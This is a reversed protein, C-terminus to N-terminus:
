DDAYLSFSMVNASPYGTENRIYEQVKSHMAQTFMVDTLTVTASGNAFSTGGLNAWWFVLYHYVKPEKKPQGMFVGTTTACLM